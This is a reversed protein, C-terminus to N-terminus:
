RYLRQLSNRCSCGPREPNRRCSLGICSRVQRKGMNGCVFDAFYRLRSTRSAVGGIEGSYIGNDEQIDVFLVPASEPMLWDMEGLVRLGGFGLAATVHSLVQEKDLGAGSLTAGVDGGMIYLGDLGKLAGAEDAIPLVCGIGRYDRQDVATCSRDLLARPSTREQEDASNMM